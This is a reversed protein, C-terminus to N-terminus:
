TQPRDKGQIKNDDKDPPVLTVVPMEPILTLTTIGSTGKTQIKYFTNICRAIMKLRKDATRSFSCGGLIRSTGAM